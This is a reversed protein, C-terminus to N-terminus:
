SPGVRGRRTHPPISDLGPRAAPPSCMVSTRARRAGAAIAASAGYELDDPHAVVALARDWDEPLLDLQPTSREPQHPVSAGADSVPDLSAPRM